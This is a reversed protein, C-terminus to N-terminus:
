GDLTTLSVLLAYPVSSLEFFSCLCSLHLSKFGIESVWISLLTDNVQALMIINHIFKISFIGWDKFCLYRSM